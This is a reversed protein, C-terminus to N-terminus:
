TEKRVLWLSLASAAKGSDKEMLGMIRDRLLESEAKDPDLQEEMTPLAATMGPLTNDVSQLEELEEITRPLINDVSEQFSETVWRMFPRIVILFFVGLSLAIVIWKILYAILKRREIKTLLDSSETFDEKKFQINEVKISDGRKENYGITNRILSEYKQLEEPSRATWKTEVKGDAGPVDTMVGDVLVAISLKEVKGAAERINKVTKPVDYNTNKMEKNVDQRFGVQGTDEAGPVNARSGPVGAPSTRNGNLKEEETVVSRVATRDPDVTEEVASINRMDLNASVRAIVRGEGVVRSLISEIREELQRETKEKMDALEGTMANEGHMPKSLIKGNSDVVTVNDVELNEVASSVLFMVGRIQDPSLHRGAQLDVVVSAKPVGGEELFTKKAPLALIVKSQKVSDLTNIARVLEGQLARQYNIKQVYSTTGFDQKEFLELGISGLKNSGVEAMIAMQTAPVFDAPILVTSGTEDLSFPINRERLKTLVLAIQDSPVNKFLPVYNKSSVMFSLIGASTFVVVASFFVATKRMPSLNKYFEKFQTFLSTLFKRM